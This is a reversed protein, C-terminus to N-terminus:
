EQESPNPSDADIPTLSILTAGLDRVKDLVGHLEAQDTVAGCLTTTGDDEHTLALGDFWTSWHRDLHGDVRLEYHTPARRQRYPSMAVRGPSRPGGAVELLRLAGAVIPIVGLAVLAALVRWSSGERAGSRRRPAPRADPATHQNM